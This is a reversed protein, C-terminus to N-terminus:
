EAVEEGSVFTAKTADIVVTLDNIGDNNWDIYYTFVRDDNTPKWYMNTFNEGDLINAMVRTKGDPRTIVVNAPDIGEPATIKFGIYNGSNGVPNTKWKVTGTVNLTVVNDKTTLKGHSDGNTTIAETYPQIPNEVPPQNQIGDDEDDANDGPEEGDGNDEETAEVFVKDFGEVVTDAPEGNENYSPTSETSVYIKGKHEYIVKGKCDANDLSAIEVDEAHPYSNHKSAYFVHKGDAAKEYIVKYDNQLQM